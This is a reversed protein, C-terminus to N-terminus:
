QAVEMRAALRLAHSADQAVDPLMPDYVTKLVRLVDPGLVARGNEHVTLPAKAFAEPGWSAMVRVVEGLALLDAPVESLAGNMRLFVFAARIAGRADFRFGRYSEARGAELRHLLSDLGPVMQDLDPVGRLEDWDRLFFVMLNVGTDPDMDGLEHGAIGCILQAAAKVVGVTEDQAGFVVPVIARGWRACLFTGDAQTFMAALTDAQMRGGHHRDPTAM